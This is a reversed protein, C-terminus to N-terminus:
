VHIKGHGVEPIEWPLPHSESYRALSEPSEGAALRAILVGQASCGCEQGEQELVPSKEPCALPYVAYEQCQHWGRTPPLLFFDTQVGM